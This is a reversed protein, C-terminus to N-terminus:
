NWRRRRHRRGAGDPLRALIRQRSQGERHRVSRALRQHQVDAPGPGLDPRRRQRREWGVPEPGRRLRVVSRRQGQVLRRWGRLRAGPRRERAPPNPATEDVKIAESEGSPESESSENSETVRYNWTGEGEPNGRLSRTPRARSAARRGHELRRLREQAPAHLDTPDAAQTSEWTLTFQGNNNPNRREHAGARDAGLAGRQAGAHLGAAPLAAAAGAGHRRRKRPPDITPVRLELNRSRCRTPRPPTACTPRLRGRAARAEARPRSGGEVGAPAAPLDAQHLRRGPEAAPLGPM